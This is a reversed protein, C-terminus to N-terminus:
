WSLKWQQRVPNNSYIIRVDLLSNIKFAGILNDTQITELIIVKKQITHM